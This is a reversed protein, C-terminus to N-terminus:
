GENRDSSLTVKDQNKFPLAKKKCALVYMIINLKEYSWLFFSNIGYLLARARAWQVLCEVNSNSEGKLLADM